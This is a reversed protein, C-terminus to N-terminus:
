ASKKFIHNRNTFSCAIKLKKKKFEQKKIKNKIIGKKLLFIITESPQAGELGDSALYRESLQEIRDKSLDEGSYWSM